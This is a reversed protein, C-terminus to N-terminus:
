RKVAGGTLIEELLSCLKGIEDLSNYRSFSFRINVQGSAGIAEMVHSGGKGSSCASGGSVAVGAMDLELLLNETAENKPFGASLVTYLAGDNDPGNIIAGMEMLKGRLAAKLMRIHVSDEAHHIAALELAKAMGAIGAVNETGARLGFEQSGGTLLPHLQLGERLYLFGVGKPGHFKHASASFMDVGTKVIEFSYHGTTQVCDSFFVAKHRKCIEAIYQLNVPAGTENNAHMLAVLSSGPSQELLHNVDAINVTGDSHLAAYNLSARGRYHMDRATQLVCAHETRATVINTLRVGAVASRMAMNASETGCSTFVICKPPCNLISAIKKRSSEIALRGARGPGHTSSPNGYSERLYPLMESLVQDDLRTTAANDFYLYQM